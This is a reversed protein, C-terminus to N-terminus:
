RILIKRYLALTKEIMTNSRFQKATERAALALCHRLATDNLLLKIKEEAEEITRIVFGNEGNRIIEPAVGVSFSVPVMGQSMAEILSLSFGEYRSTLLAIGGAHQNLMSPITDKVANAVITHNPINNKMWQVLKKNRSMIVSFKKVEPFQEFLWILRDVGKLKLTFPDEGIRGLFVLTPESKPSNNPTEFWYDEIANYIVEIKEAAVGVSIIDKKVIESTAIIYDARAAAYQEISAIDNLPRRTKINFERIAGSQKLRIFVDSCGSELHNTKPVAKLFGITSSGFHSVVPKSFRLFALPTYTTGQIIDHRLIEERKELLSYFFLINNIGKFHIPTDTLLFQPYFNNVEAGKERLKCAILDNIFHAGTGIKKDSHIFAIKM